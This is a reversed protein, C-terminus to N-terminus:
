LETKGDVVGGIKDSEAKEIRAEFCKWCLDKEFKNYASPVGKKSHNCDACKIKGEKTQM